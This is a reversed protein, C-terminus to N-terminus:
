YKKEKRENIRKEERHKKVKRRWNNKEMGRGKRGEASKTNDVDRKKDRKIKWERIKRKEGREKM